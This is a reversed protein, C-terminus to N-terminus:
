SAKHRHDTVSRSPKKGFMGCVTIAM